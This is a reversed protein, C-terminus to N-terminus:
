GSNPSVTKALRATALEKRLEALFKRAEEEDDFSVNATDRLAKLPFPEAKLLRDIDLIVRDLDSAGAVSAYPAVIDAVAGSDIWDSVYGNLFSKLHEYEPGLQETAGPGFLHEVFKSWLSM